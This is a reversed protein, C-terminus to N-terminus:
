NNKDMEKITVDHIKQDIKQLQDYSIQIQDHVSNVLTIVESIREKLQSVAQSKTVSIGASTSQIKRGYKFALVLVCFTASTPILIAALIWTNLISHFRFNAHNIEQQSASQLLSSNQLIPDFSSPLPFCYTVSLSIILSIIKMM